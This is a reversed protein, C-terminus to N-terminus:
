SNFNLYRDGFAAGKPSIQEIRDLDNPTLIVNLAVINEKLHSLHNTGPIPVINEGRSLIWALALQSPTCNKENALEEIM